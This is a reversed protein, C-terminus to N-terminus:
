SDGRLGCEDAIRLHRADEHMEDALRSLELSLDSVADWDRLAVAEFLENITTATETRHAWLSDAYTM